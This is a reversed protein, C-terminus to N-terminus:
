RGEGVFQETVQTSCKELLTRLHENQHDFNIPIIPGHCRAFSGSLDSRRRLLSACYFRLSERARSLVFCLLVLSGHCLPHLAPPKGITRWETQVIANLEGSGCAAQVASARWASRRIGFNVQASSGAKRPSAGSEDRSGTPAPGGRKYCQQADGLPATVSSVVNTATRWPM